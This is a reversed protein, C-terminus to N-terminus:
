GTRLGPTKTCRMQPRGMPSSGGVRAGAARVRGTAKLKVAFVGGVIQAGDLALADGGGGNELVAGQLSLQGEVRLGLARVEGTASLHSADLNGSTVKAQDLRVGPTCSGTLALYPLSTAELDLQGEFHSFTICLPVSLTARALDLTGAIVAGHIRLGHPDAVLAPDVLVRRIADAPIRAGAPYTSAPPLKWGDPLDPSADLPDPLDPAGDLQALDLIVGDPACDHLRQVGSSLRALLRRKAITLIWTPITGPIQKSRLWRRLDSRSYASWWPVM